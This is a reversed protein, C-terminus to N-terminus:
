ARVFARIRFTGTHDKLWRKAAAHYEAQDKFPPPAWGDAPTAGLLTFLRAPSLRFDPGPKTWDAEALVDLIRRSEGADIPEMKQDRRHVGVEFTRYRSILLAATLLREDADRATLGSQPDGLLRSWHRCREVEKGFAPNNLKAVPYDYEWAFVHVPEAFHQRLFFCGEYGPIVAQHPLLAVRVHTLGQAGKLGEDIRVVVIRYDTRQTASPFPLLSETKQEVAMVRGVIVCDSTAFRVQPGPIGAGCAHVAAAAASVLLCALGGM